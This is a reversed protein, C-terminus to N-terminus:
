GGQVEIYIPDSVIEDNEIKTKCIYSGNDSRRVSTISQPFCLSMNLPVVQGAGRVSAAPGTAERDRAPVTLRMDLLPKTMTCLVSLQRGLSIFTYTWPSLSCIARQPMPAMAALFSRM